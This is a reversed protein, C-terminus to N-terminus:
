HHDQWPLVITFCSGKGFISEAEVSGGQLEVLAKALALGLGTGEYMRALRADIQVFPQFLKPFDEQKIGIGTDSIRIRVQRSAPEGVVRVEIRGEDPTFKIANDLLSDMAQKLRRADVSVQITEPEIHFVLQQRKAGAKPQMSQISSDCIMRLLSLQMEFDLSGSQAQSFTIINNILHLLRRGSSEITQVSKLQKENLSGYLNLQLSESFSLIASLPTRLEHSMSALFENKAQLAKALALNSVQLEATREEVRQELETQALLLRAETRKQATIDVILIVALREGGAEIAATSFMVYRLEGSKRRITTEINRNMDEKRFTELWSTPEEPHSFLNLANPTHDIVEDRSYGILDLFADNVDIIDGDCFRFLCIGIPSAQFTRNFKEESERLNEETQKRENIDTNVGHWKVVSGQDDLVPTAQTLFWHYKGDFRRLRQELRYNTKSRTAEAWALQTAVIDDPHLAQFWGIGLAEDMSLGTFSLCSENMYYISGDPQSLWIMAPITNITQYLQKEIAKSTIDEAIVSIGAIKGQDKVPYYWAEFYTKSTGIGWFASEVAPAGSLIRDFNQKIRDHHDQNPIYDLIRHGPEIQSGYLAQMMDAHKRNFVTYCYNRDVSFMITPSRDLLDQMPNLQEM